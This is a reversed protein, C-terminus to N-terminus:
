QRRRRRASLGLGLVLLAALMSAGSSSQCGGYITPEGNSGAGGEGDGNEGGVGGTGGSGTGDAGGEEEIVEEVMAYTVAINSFGNGAPIEITGPTADITFPYVGLNNTGVPPAATSNSDAMEIHLQYNGNPVLAGARDKVDWRAIMPANHNLRTAGSIGDIDGIPAAAAWGSLHIAYSSQTKFVTSVFNGLEDTVWVAVVNAPRYYGDDGGQPPVNAISTDFTVEIQPVLAHANSASVLAIGLALVSVALKKM